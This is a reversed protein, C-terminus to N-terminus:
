TLDLWAASYLADNNPSTVSRSSADALNRRSYLTNQSAGMGLLKTRTAAMELLPLVYIFADRALVRLDLAAAFAAAPTLLTAAPAVQRTSTGAGCGAAGRPSFMGSSM